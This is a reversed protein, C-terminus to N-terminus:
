RCSNVYSSRYQYTKWEVYILEKLLVESVNCFSKRLLPFKEIMRRHRPLKIKQELYIHLTENRHWQLRFYLKPIGSTLNHIQSCLGNVIKMTNQAPFIQLPQFGVVLIFSHSTSLYFLNQRHLSTQGFEISQLDIKM